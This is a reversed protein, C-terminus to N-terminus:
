SQIIFSNIFFCCIRTININDELKALFIISKLANEKSLNRHFKIIVESITAFYYAVTRKLEIIMLIFKVLLQVLLYGLEVLKARVEDDECLTGYIASKVCNEDKLDILHLILLLGNEKM